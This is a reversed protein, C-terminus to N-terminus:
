RGGAWWRPLESVSDFVVEPRIAHNLDTARYKGTRVLASGLGAAQAGAVDTEIDDGIMLIQGPSMRLRDAAARFFAASPKGFVLPKRASAHELAVIFPAVDLAIGNGSM